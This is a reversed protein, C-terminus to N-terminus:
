RHIEAVLDSVLDIMDEDGIYLGAVEADRGMLALWARRWRGTWGGRNGLVVSVWWEMPTDERNRSVRFFADMGGCFCEIIPSQWYWEDKDFQNM